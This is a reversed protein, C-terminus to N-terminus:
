RTVPFEHGREGPGPESNKTPNETRTSISDILSPKLVRFIEDAAIQNGKVSPHSPDAPIMANRLYLEEPHYTRYVPLLDVITVGTKAGFERLRQQPEGSLAEDGLRLHYKDRYFQLEETSLQMQMPFVIVGVRYGRERCFAVIKALMRLSSEWAEKQYASPPTLTVFNLGRVKNVDIIGSGYMASKLRSYCFLYLQSHRLLFRSFKRTWPFRRGHWQARAESISGSDSYVLIDNLALGVLIMDPQLLEAKQSLSYYYDSLSGGITGGNLVEYQMKGPADNNLRKELVKAYTSEVPIGYGFTISDGVVLIRVTNRPKATSIEGGRLGYSNITVPVGIFNAHGHPINEVFHPSTALIRRISQSDWFEVDQPKVIRIGIELLALTACISVVLISLIPLLRRV